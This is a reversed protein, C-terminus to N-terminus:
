QWAESCSRLPEMVRWLAGLRRVQYVGNEPAASGEKRRKAPPGGAADGREAGKAGGGGGGPDAASLREAEEASGEVRVGVPLAFADAAAAFQSYVVWLPLPLLRAAGRQAARLAEGGGAGGGRPGLAAALPRGAQELGRLAAQLAELRGKQQAARAAEQAREGEARRLAGTLRKRSALEYSLRALMLAHAGGGGKAAAAANAADSLFEAEPILAIEGDSHASRFSTCSSIEKEYFQREYVANALLLVSRDLQSKAAAARERVAESGLAEDRYSARLRLLAMTGARCADQLASADAQPKSGKLEVIREVMEKLVEAAEM